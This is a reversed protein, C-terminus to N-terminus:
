ALRRQLDERAATAVPARLTRGLAKEHLRAVCAPTACLWAGRGPRSRGVVLDDDLLAVRVLDDPRRVLRCVICTRWPGPGVPKSGAM